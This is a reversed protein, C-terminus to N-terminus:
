LKNLHLSCLHAWFMLLAHPVGVESSRKQWVLLFVILRLSKIELDSSYRDVLRWLHLQERRGMEEGRAVRFWRFLARTIEDRDMRGRLRFFLPSPPFYRGPLIHHHRYIWQALGILLLPRAQILPPFVRRHSHVATSLCKSGGAATVCMCFCPELVLVSGCNLGRARGSVCRESRSRGAHLFCIRQVFACKCSSFFGSITM